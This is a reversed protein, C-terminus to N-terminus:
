VPSTTGRAVLAPMATVPLGSSIYNEWYSNTGSNEPVLKAIHLAFTRLGTIGQGTNKNIVQFTVVPRKDPISASIIKGGLPINKLDDVSFTGADVTNKNVADKGNAGNSGSCGSLTLATAVALIFFLCLRIISKRQM